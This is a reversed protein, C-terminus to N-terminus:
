SLRLHPGMWWEGELYTLFCDRSLVSALLATDRTHIMSGGQYRLLCRRQSLAAMLHPEARGQVAGAGNTYAHHFLHDVVADAKGRRAAVQIVWGAGGPKLYYVYWGLFQGGDDRVLSRILRGRAAVQEMEFFAWRLFAETYDPHCRFSKMASPLNELMTQPTLEEAVATPTPPRLKEGLVGLIARDAASCLPRLASAWHPRHEAVMSDNAYSAPRLFRTWNISGLYATQAGAAEGLRRSADNAGDTTSIEQPGALFRRL